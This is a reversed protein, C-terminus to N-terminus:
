VQLIDDTHLVNGASEMAGSLMLNSILAWSRPYYSNPLPEALKRGATDIMAEANVIDSSSAVLASFTPGYIFANFQWGGVFINTDQNVAGADAARCSPFSNSSWGGSNTDFNSDLRWNFQSLFPSWESSMEPYLVADLAVRFTTRAAETGYEFQPTGSGSFRGGTHIINDNGDTGITAWNPVLAGDGSCQVTRLVEYSTAILKDWENEPIGNYGVRDADSISKQYDRMVRYSGPSHYSPNNGQGEWGGWCSGLKILRREGRSNDVNFQFFATASADAWKRAEDYWGPKNADNELAKVAMIIGVIADEDADPAPGTSESGGTKRHRWDPLCVNSLGSSSDICYDGGPQCNASGTSSNKCMEKWFNYYGEFSTIVDSRTAGNITGAHSDWSALVTGTILLAYAQSESVVLNGSGAAGGSAVLAYNPPSVSNVHTMFDLGIFVDWANMANDTSLLIGSTVSTPRIPQVMPSPIPNVVEAPSDTPSPNNCNNPDCDGCNSSYEEGGVLKCANNETYGMNSVVWDIRSGCSYGDALYALVQQTCSQCGCKPGNM